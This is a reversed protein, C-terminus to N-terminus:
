SSAKTRNRFCDTKVSIGTEKTLLNIPKVSPNFFAPEMKPSMSGRQINNCVGQGIHTHSSIHLMLDNVSPCGVTRQEGKLM